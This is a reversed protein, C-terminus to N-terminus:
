EETVAVIWRVHYRPKKWALIGIAVAAALVILAPRAEGIRAVHYPIWYPFWV